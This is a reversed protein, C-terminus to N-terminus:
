KVMNEMSRDLPRLGVHACACSQIAPKNRSVSGCVLTKLLQM